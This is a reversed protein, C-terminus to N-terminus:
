SVERIAEQVRRRFEQYSEDTDQYFWQEAGVTSRSWMKSGPMPTYHSISVLDPKYRRLFDLTMQRDEETEGPFGYMIYSKARIGAKKILAITNGLADVNAKKNMLNLVKQSGSEVGIHTELCGAKRMKGLLDEDLTNARTICVWTIDLKADIVKDCFAMIRERKLTFIDDVFRFHKVSYDAIVSRLEKIMYDPSHFRVKRTQPISTCFTCSYPCGRSTLISTAGTGVPQGHIGSYDVVNKFLHRAPFPLGDINDVPWAGLIKPKHKMEILEPLTEEAEGIVVHCNLDVFDDPQASPHVGGVIVTQKAQTLSVVIDKVAPFTASVCTVGYIDAPPFPGTDMNMDHVQVEYKLNELNELVAALYGVGLSIYSSPKELELQPPIIFCIKM